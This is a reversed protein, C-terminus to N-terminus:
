QNGEKAKGRRAWFNCIEQEQKKWEEELLPLEDETM